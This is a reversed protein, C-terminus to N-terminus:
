TCSQLTNTSISSFTMMYASQNDLLDDKIAIYRSYHLFHMQTAIFYEQFNWSFVLNLM